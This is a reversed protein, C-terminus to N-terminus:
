VKDIIEAESETIEGDKCMCDILAKKIEVKAKIADRSELYNIILYLGVLITVPYVILPLMAQFLYVLAGVVGIVIWLKRSLIKSSELGKVQKIFSQMKEIDM